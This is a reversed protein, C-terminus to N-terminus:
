KGAGNADTYGRIFFLKSTKQKDASDPPIIMLMLVEERAGSVKTFGCLNIDGLMSSVMAAAPEDKSAIKAAEQACGGEKWGTNKMRALTYFAEVEPPTKVTSYTISDAVGSSIAKLILRATLPMEFDGKIAGDIVPVDPWMTSVNKTDSGLGVASTVKNVAADKITSCGMLGIAVLTALGIRSNIKTKM